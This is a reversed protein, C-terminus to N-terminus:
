SVGKAIDEVRWVLDLTEARLQSDERMVVNLRVWQLWAVYQALSFRGEEFRRRARRLRSGKGRAM